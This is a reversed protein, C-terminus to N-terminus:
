AQRPREHCRRDMYWDNVWTGEFFSSFGRYYMKGQGARVGDKFEGTYFGGSAYWCTGSGSMCDNQWTGNYNDGHEFWMRGMGHRKDSEWEGQYQFIASPNSKKYFMNGKGHRKNDLWEGDYAHYIEDWYFNKGHGNRMDQSWLGDYILKGNHRLIGMGQRIDRLYVGSFHRSCSCTITMEGSM